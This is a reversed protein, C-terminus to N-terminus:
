QSIQLTSGVTLNSASEYSTDPCNKAGSSGQTQWLTQLCINNRWRTIYESSSLEDANPWYATINIKQTSPDFSGGNEVCTAATGNADTIGKVNKTSTERCVNQVTFYRTYAIDNIIVNETGQTFIWKGAPASKQPYYNESYKTLGYLNQWNEEAVLRATEFTEEAIGLGVNKEAALKNSQMSVLVLQSGLIGIVALAAVAILIELLLQGRNGSLYKIKAAEKNM